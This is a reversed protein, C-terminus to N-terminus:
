RLRLLALLVLMAGSIWSVDWQAYRNLREGIANGCLILLVGAVLSFGLLIWAHHVGIGYALGSALSDMSLAFGLYLAEKGNLAKSHDMDACREDLLIDIVISVEAFRLILPQKQYNRLLKKVQSRFLHFLGLALLIIFSIQKPTNESCLSTIMGALGMAAGLCLTNCAAIIWIAKWSMAIREAGYAISMFFSDCTTALILLVMDIMKDVWREMYEIHLVFTRMPLSM